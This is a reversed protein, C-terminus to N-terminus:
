WTDSLTVPITAGAAPAKTVDLYVSLHESGAKCALPFTVFIATSGPNKKLRVNAGGGVVAISVITGGSVSPASAGSAAPGSPYTVHVDPKSPAGLKLQIESATADWQASAKISTSAGDCVAPAPLMDVVMYGPDISASQTTSPKPPPPPDPPPDPKKKVVDDPTKVILPDEKSCGLAASAAAVGLLRKMHAVTRARPSEDSESSRTPTPLVEPLVRLKRM